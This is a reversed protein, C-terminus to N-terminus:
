AQGGQEAKVDGCKVHPVRHGSQGEWDVGIVQLGPSSTM